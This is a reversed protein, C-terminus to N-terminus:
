SCLCTLWGEDKRGGDRGVEVVKSVNVGVYTDSIWYVEFTYTHAEPPAQFQLKFEIAKPEPNGATPVPVDAIRQPQVVIRNGVPDGIM